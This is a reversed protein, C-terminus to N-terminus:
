LMEKMRREEKIGDIEATGQEEHLRETCCCIHKPDDCRRFIDNFNDLRDFITDFLYHLTM